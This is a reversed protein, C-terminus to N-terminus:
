QDDTVKKQKKKSKNWKWRTDEFQERAENLRMDLLMKHQNRM